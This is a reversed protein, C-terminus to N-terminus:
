KYTLFYKITTLCRSIKLRLYLTSKYTAKPFLGQVNLWFKFLEVRKATKFEASYYASDELQVDKITLVNENTTVRDSTVATRMDKADKRWIWNGHDEDAPYALKATFSICQGVSLQVPNRVHTLQNTGLM